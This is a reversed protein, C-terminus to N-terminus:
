SEETEENLLSSISTEPISLIAAIEDASMGISKQRSPYPASDDHRYLRFPYVRIDFVSFMPINQTVVHPHKLPFCPSTKPSLMPINQSFVHPHKTHEGHPQVSNLIAINQTGYATGVLEKYM